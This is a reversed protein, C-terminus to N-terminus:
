FKSFGRDVANELTGLLSETNQSLASNNISKNKLFFRQM